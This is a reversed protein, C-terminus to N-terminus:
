KIREGNKFTIKYNLQGNEYYEEWVGELKGNKYTLKRELQGNSFYEEYDGHLKGDKYTSKSYILGNDYYFEWVGEEKGEKYSGKLLYGHEDLGKVSGSYPKDTFKKYYFGNTYVLDTPKVTESLM